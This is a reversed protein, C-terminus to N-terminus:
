GMKLDVFVCLKNKNMKKEGRKVRARWRMKREVV